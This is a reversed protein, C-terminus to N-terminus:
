ELHQEQKNFCEQLIDIEKIGTDGAGERRPGRAPSSQSRQTSGTVSRTPTRFLNTSSGASEERRRRGRMRGSVRSKRGLPVGACGWGRERSHTGKMTSEGGGSVGRKSVTDVEMWVQREEGIGTEQLLQEDALVQQLNQNGAEWEMENGKDTAPTSVIFEEPMPVQPTKTTETTPPGRFVANERQRGSQHPGDARVAAKGAVEKTMSDWMGTM